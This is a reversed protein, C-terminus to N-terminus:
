QSGAPGPYVFLRIARKPMDLRPSDGDNGVHNFGTLSPPISMGDLEIHFIIDFIFDCGCVVFVEGVYTVWGIAYAVTVIV